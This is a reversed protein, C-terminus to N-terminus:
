NTLIDLLARWYKEPLRVRGEEYKKYSQLPIDAAAALERQSMGMERRTGKLLKPVDTSDIFKHYENCFYYEDLGLYVAMKKLMQVNMHEESVKGNMYNFITEKAYGIAKAIKYQPVKAKYMCYRIRASISQEIKAKDEFMGEFVKASKTLVTGKTEM